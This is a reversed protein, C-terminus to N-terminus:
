PLHVTIGVTSGSFMQLFTTRIERPSVGEATPPETYLSEFVFERGDATVTYQTADAQIIQVVDRIRITKGDGIRTITTTARVQLQNDKTKVEVLVIEFTYSSDGM